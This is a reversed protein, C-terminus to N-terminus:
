ICHYFHPILGDPMGGVWPTCVRGLTWGNGPVTHPSGLNKWFTSLPPIDHYKLVFLLM